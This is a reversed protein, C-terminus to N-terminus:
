RRQFIQLCPQSRSYKLGRPGGSRLGLGFDEVWKGMPLASLIEELYNHALLTREGAAREVTAFLM